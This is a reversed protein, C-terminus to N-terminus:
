ILQKLSVPSMPCLWFSRSLAPGKSKAFLTGSCNGKSGLHNPVCAKHTSRSEFRLEVVTAGHSQALVKGQKLRLTIMGLMPYGRAPIHPPNLSPVRTLHMACLKVRESCMIFPPM